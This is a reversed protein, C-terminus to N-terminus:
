GMVVGPLGMTKEARWVVPTAVVPNDMEVTEGMGIGLEEQGLEM